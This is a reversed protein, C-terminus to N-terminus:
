VAGVFTLLIFAYGFDLWFMSAFNLVVIMYYLLRSFLGVAFHTQQAHERVNNMDRNSPFSHAGFSVALWIAFMYAYSNHDIASAIYGVVLTALSNFLLPAASICLPEIYRKPIEHRVYGAEGGFLKFTFVFYKVEIVRVGFLNATIKHAFEHLVVGPFTVLSVM